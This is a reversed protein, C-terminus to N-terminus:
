LTRTEHNSFISLVQCMQDDRVIYNKLSKENPKPSTDTKTDNESSKTRIKM